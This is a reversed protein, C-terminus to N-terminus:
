RIRLGCRRALTAYGEGRYESRVRRYEAWANLARDSSARRVRCLIRSEGGWGRFFREVTPIDSGEFDFDRGSAISEEIMREFLLMNLCSGRRIEDLQGGLLYYTTRHDHVALTGCLPRRARDRLLYIRGAGRAEVANWWQALGDPLSFSRAAATIRLLPAIEDWRPDAAFECASQVFEREARCLQRARQPSCHARWAAGRASPIVTTCVVESDFGSWLYPQVDAWGCPLVFDLIEAGPLSALVSLITEQIHQSVAYQPGAPLALPSNVPTLPLPRIASFGLFQSASFCTGAVIENAADKLALVVPTANWARHWWATQFLSGNPVRAVFRDWADHESRDLAQMRRDATRRQAARRDTRAAKSSIRVSAAGGARGFWGRPRIRAARNRRAAVM